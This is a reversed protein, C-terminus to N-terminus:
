TNREFKCNDYYKSRLKLNITENIIQEINLNNDLGVM